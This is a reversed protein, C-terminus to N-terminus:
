GIIAQLTAATDSLNPLLADPHTSRLADLNYTGTAVAVVWASGARACQVDRPTDGIVVTRDFPLGAVRTKAEAVAVLRDRVRDDSGFAGCDWRFATDLNAAKLKIEATPRLNGTLLTQVAGAAHLAALATRVGPLVQVEGRLRELAAQALEHYRAAFQPLRELALAENVAHLALVELVIEGDTKGGFDTRRLEGELEYVTRLASLFAETTARSGRILTGDIDWLVLPPM